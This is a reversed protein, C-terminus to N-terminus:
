VECGPMGVKKGRYDMKNQKMLRWKKALSDVYVPTTTVNEDWFPVFPKYEEVKPHPCYPWQGIEITQGCDDCKM